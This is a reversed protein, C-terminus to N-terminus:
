EITELLIVTIGYQAFGDRLKKKIKSFSSGFFRLMEAVTHGVM